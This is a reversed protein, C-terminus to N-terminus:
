GSLRVSLVCQVSTLLSTRFVSLLMIFLFLPSVRFLPPQQLSRCIHQIPLVRATFNYGPTEFLYLYVAGKYPFQPDACATRGM